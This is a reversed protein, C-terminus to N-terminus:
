KSMELRMGYIIQFLSVVCYLVLDLKPYVKKLYLLVSVCALVLAFTFSFLLGPGSYALRLACTHAATLGCLVSNWTCIRCCARASFVLFLPASEDPRYIGMYGAFDGQQACNTQM